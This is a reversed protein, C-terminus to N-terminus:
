AVDGGSPRLTADGACRGATATARAVTAPPPSPRVARGRARRCAGPPARDNDWGENLALNAVGCARPHAHVNRAPCAAPDPRLIGPMIASAVVPSSGTRRSKRRNRAASQPGM